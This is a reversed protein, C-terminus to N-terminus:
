DQGAVFRLPEFSFRLPGVVCQDIKELALLQNKRVAVLVCQSHQIRLDIALERFLIAGFVGNLFVAGLM